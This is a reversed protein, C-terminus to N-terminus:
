SHKKFGNRPNLPECDRKEEESVRNPNRLVGAPCTFEAGKEDRAVLIQEIAGKIREM